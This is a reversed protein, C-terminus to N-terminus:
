MERVCCGCFLVFCCCVLRRLTCISGVVLTRWHEVDQQCPNGMLYLEQLCPIAQLVQIADLLQQPSAITNLTLDLKHLSECRQLGQLSNISNMALNLYELAKLKGLPTICTLDNAQLYLIRLRKCLMPLITIDTLNLQHLSIEQLNSLM